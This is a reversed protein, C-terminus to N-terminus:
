ARRRFVAYALVAGALALAGLVPAGFFPVATVSVVMCGMSEVDGEVATVYYSYTVGATTTTDTYGPGTVSALMEFDEEGVARYVVFTGDASGDWTLHVGGEALAAVLVNAPCPPHVVTTGCPEVWFTKSKAFHGAEHGPHGDDTFVEVRYHGAPLFYPGVLFHFNGHEDEAGASWTLTAGTPTVVQKDGTPPWAYFVLHGGPDNMGFGEIWFDCSVHPVNRQPPNEVANDHVKVTGANNDSQASAPPAFTAVCLCLAIVLLLPARM